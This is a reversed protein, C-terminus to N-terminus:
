RLENRFHPWPPLVGGYLALSTQTLEHSDNSMLRNVSGIRLVKSRPTQGGCELIMVAVCSNRRIRILCLARIDSRVLRWSALRCVAKGDRM